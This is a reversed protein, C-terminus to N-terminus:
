KFGNLGIREIPIFKFGLKFAPSDPKLRFDGKEADVFLPDTVLSNLDFGLAKWQKL